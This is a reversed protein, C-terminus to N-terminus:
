SEKRTIAELRDARSKPLAVLAEVYPHAPATLLEYPTGVQVIAGELMVAIQDAMLLAEAMDHTVMIATLSLQEQIRKFEEQVEARTIPDLAGFPEDLLMLRPEAALARAVGVRQQEGGSLEHPMRSRYQNPDLGVLELMADARELRRAKEWGLLWPVTSVSDSVTYHPFLGVGQIVYGIRRRLTVADLTSADENDIYVRGGTPEILRNIMKLTTTKGCGSAGILALLQGEEVEFNVAQVAHSEGHDYSKSLQEVRIM